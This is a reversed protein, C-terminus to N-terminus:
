GRPTATGHCACRCQPPTTLAGVCSRATRSPQVSISVATPKRGYSRRSRSGNLPSAASAQRRPFRQVAGGPGLRNEDSGSLERPRCFKLLLGPQQFLQRVADPRTGQRDAIGAAFVTNAAPFYRDGFQELLAKRIPDVAAARNTGISNMSIFLGVNHSPLLWLASHFYFSDGDHGIASLGNIRTEYFGLAMRNTGPVAGYAPTQMLRASEPQLLGAGQNLHAIMFKAMDAGSIAAAGAGAPEVLEFPQADVSARPYGQAMFPAFQAPLPQRFTSHTMGLPRFFVASSTNKMHCAPFASSSIAPLGRVM